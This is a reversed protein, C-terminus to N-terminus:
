GQPIPFSLLGSSSTTIRPGLDICIETFNSALHERTKNLLLQHVTLMGFSYGIVTCELILRQQRGRM